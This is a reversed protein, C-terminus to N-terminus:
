MHFRQRTEVGPLGDILVDLPGKSGYKRHEDLIFDDTLVPRDKRFFLASKSYIQVAKNCEDVESDNLVLTSIRPENKYSTPKSVIVSMMPTLAVLIKPSHPPNICGSINNFIGDGFIFEKNESLLVAYKGDCGISDAIMRQANRMNLGIIANREQSPLRGRLKEAIAVSAERNMPSRVALSVVCETFLKLQDNTAVEPTFRDKFDKDPIKEYRLTSLWEILTPFNSDANDFVNEFSTDFPSDESPNANLKIHHGNGIMGLKAPPIKKCTGDPSIWSTFGDDDAWNKSVCRPWWHHLAYKKKRQM